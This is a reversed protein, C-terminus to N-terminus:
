SINDFNWLLAHPYPNGILGCVDIWAATWTPYGTTERANDTWIDGGEAGVWGGPKPQRIGMQTEDVYILKHDGFGQFSVLDIAGRKLWINRLQVPKNVGYVIQEGMTKTDYELAELLAAQANLSGYCATWPAQSGNIAATAEALFQPWYKPDFKGWPLKKAFSTWKATSARTLGAYAAVDPTVTVGSDTTRASTHALMSFLGDPMYSYQDEIFLWDTEGDAAGHSTVTIQKNEFDIASITKSNIGISGSTLADYSDIVLGERLASLDDVKLTNADVYATVRCLYGSPCGMFARNKFFALAQMADKMVQSNISTESILKGETKGRTSIRVQNGFEKLSWKATYPTAVLWAPITTSGESSIMKTPYGIKGTMGAQIYFADGDSQVGLSTAKMRRTFPVDEDIGQRIWPMEALALQSAYTTTLTNAM